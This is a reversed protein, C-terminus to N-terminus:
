IQNQDGPGWGAWLRGDPGTFVTNLFSNEPMRTSAWTGDEDRVLMETFGPEPPDFDAPDLDLDAPTLTLYPIGLPGFVTMTIDSGSTNINPRARRGYRREAEMYMAINLDRAPQYGVLLLNEGVHHVRLIALSGSNP